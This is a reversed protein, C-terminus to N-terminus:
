ASIHSFDFEGMQTLMKMWRTEAAANGPANYPKKGSIRNTDIGDNKRM